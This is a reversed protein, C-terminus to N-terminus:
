QMIITTNTTTIGSIYGFNANALGCVSAVVDLTYVGDCCYFAYTVV